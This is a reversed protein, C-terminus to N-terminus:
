INLCWCEMGCGLIRFDLLETWFSIDKKNRLLLMHQQYEDSADRSPVELSYGCCINKNLFLIYFIMAGSLAGNEESFYM